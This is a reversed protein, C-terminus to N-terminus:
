FFDSKLPNVVGSRSLSVVSNDVSLSRASEAMIGPSVIEHGHLVAEDNREDLVDKIEEDDRYSPRNVAFLLLSRYHANQSYRGSMPRCTSFAGISHSRIKPRDGIVLYESLLIKGYFRPVGRVLDVHSWRLDQRGKGDDDSARSVKAGCIGLYALLSVLARRQRDYDRCGSRRGVRM